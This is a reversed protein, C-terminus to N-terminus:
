SILKYGRSALTQRLHEVHESNLTELELHLLCSNIETTANVREHNVALINAGEEAVIKMVKRSRVVLIYVDGSNPQLGALRVQVCLCNVDMRMDTPHLAMTIRSNKNLNFM